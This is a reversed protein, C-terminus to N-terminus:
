AAVEKRASSRGQKRLHQRISGWLGSIEEASRSSPDLEAAVRGDTMAAAYDTRQHLIAVVPGSQSLAMIAQASIRTRPTVANLVFMLPRSEAEVMGVTAELTGLDLPSPRSPILVLDSHRLVTRTHSVDAGPTDIVVLKFGASRLAELQQPLEALTTQVFAPTEAQRANWWRALSAQPDTDIVAVPGDGQRDAEVSIHACLTSKGGGGKVSALTLVDMQGEGRVNRRVYRLSYVQLVELSFSKRRRKRVYPLGPDDQGVPGGAKSRLSCGIPGVPGLQL